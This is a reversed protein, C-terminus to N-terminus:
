RFNGIFTINIYNWLKKGEPMWPLTAWFEEDNQFRSYMYNRAAQLRNERDMKNLDKITLLIIYISKFLIFIYVNM